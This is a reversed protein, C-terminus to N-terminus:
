NAFRICDSSSMLTLITKTWTTDKMPPLLRDSTYVDCLPLLDCLEMCAELALAFDERVSRASESLEPYVFVSVWAGQMLM